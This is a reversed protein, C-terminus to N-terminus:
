FQYGAGPPLIKIKVNGRAEADGTEPKIDVEDANLVVDHIKLGCNGSCKILSGTVSIERGTVSAMGVESVGRGTTAYGFSATKNSSTTLSTQGLLLCPLLLIPILRAHKM